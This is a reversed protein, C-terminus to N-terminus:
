VQSQMRGSTRGATAWTPSCQSSRVMLGKVYLLDNLLVLNQNTLQNRELLHRIRLITSEDPIRNDSGLGAFIRSTKFRRKFPRIARRSGDGCSTFGCCRRSLSRRDARRAM